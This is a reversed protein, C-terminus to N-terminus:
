HVVVGRGFRMRLQQLRDVTGREADAVPELDKRALKTASDGRRRIALKTVRAEFDEIHRTSQNLPQGWLEVDPHTVSIVDGFHWWTKFYCRQSIVRQICHFVLRASNVTHLKMGLHGVRWETRLHQAVKQERNATAAAIPRRFCNNFFLDFAYSSLKA